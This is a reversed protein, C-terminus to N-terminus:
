TFVVKPRLTGDDRPHAIALLAGGHVLAVPGPGEGPIPRGHRISAAEREDLDRRPLGGLAELPDIGGHAAVDAPAVAHEVRLAGVALRRLEECYAGCGLGEGLDAVLQRIYTGKSCRVELEMWGDGLGDATLSAEQVVIEREPREVAEGRRTRRYLPEGGVKVAALAPVRQRHVGPLVAVASEVLPRAPIAAGTQTIPGEPDGTASVAGLRVRARYTKDLATLYTVLRTARGIAVVLLGTAFPDLTGAHGVRTGRPLGLRIRDVIDHSTPGAPKDVLWVGFPSDSPDAM